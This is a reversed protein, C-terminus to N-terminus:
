KMRIGGMSCVFFYNLAQVGLSRDLPRYLTLKNDGIAYSKNVSHILFLAYKTKKVLCDDSNFLTSDIPNYLCDRHFYIADYTNFLDDASNWSDNLIECFILQVTGKLVSDVAFTYTCDLVGVEDMVCHKDVIEGFIIVDSNKAMWELAPYDISQGFSIHFSSLIFITRIIDKTKM